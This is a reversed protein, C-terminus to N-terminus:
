RVWSTWSWVVRGIILDESNNFESIQPPWEPNDSVLWFREKSISIRKIACPEQSTRVAYIAKSTIAKDDRDIVVIDGPHLAPEMSKADPALKVAVLNRRSGIEPKYVWVLDTIKDAVIRGLGAAIKDEVMPVAYYDEPRLGKPIEPVGGVVTIVPIIGELDVPRRGLLRKLIKYTTRFQPNSGPGYSNSFDAMNKQSLSFEKAIRTLEGRNNTKFYNLNDRIFVLIQDIEDDVSMVAHYDFFDLQVTCKERSM